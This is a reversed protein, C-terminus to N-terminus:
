QILPACARRAAASPVPTRSAGTGGPAAASSLVSVPSTLAPRKPPSLPIQSSQGRISKGRASMDVYGREGDHALGFHVYDAAM